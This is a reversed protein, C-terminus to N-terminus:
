YDQAKPYVKTGGIIQLLSQSCSEKKGKRPHQPNISTGQMQQCAGDRVVVEATPKTEEQKGNIKLPLTETYCTLMLGATYTCVIM